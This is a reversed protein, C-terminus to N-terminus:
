QVFLKDLAELQRQRWTKVLERNRIAREDVPASMVISDAKEGERKFFDRLVKPAVYPTPFSVIKWEKGIRTLKYKVLREMPRELPQIERGHTRDWSPVGTGRTTAVVRYTIGIICEKVSCARSNSEIRWDTALEIADADLEFAVRSREPQRSSAVVVSANPAALSVRGNPDGAMDCEIMQRLATEPSAAHVVLCITHLLLCVLLRIASMM